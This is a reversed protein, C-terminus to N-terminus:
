GAFFEKLVPAIADPAANHQQGELTRQKANPMAKALAVATDYMFADGAGGNMILAPVTVRAARAAPVARDEGLVDADYALTPAVDEFMSWWPEARMPEIQEAPMGVQMLFLAVADGKRNAALLERLKRRFEKWAQRAEEDGKYPAEYMALKKIKSGLRLTAEMALIAGSSSGYIFASGGAKDILAEIDEVEREVAYPQTDTSEGRGRRDYYYVTFHPALLEALQATGPDMARHMFAGSVLILAPGQGIQEYAIGTGDKSIVTRMIFDGRRGHLYQINAGSSEM